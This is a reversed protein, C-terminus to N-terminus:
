TCMMGGFHFLIQVLGKFWMFVEGGRYHGHSIGSISRDLFTKGNETRLKLTFCATDVARVLSISQSKKVLKSNSIDDRTVRSRSCKGTLNHVSDPKSIRFITVLICSFICPDM